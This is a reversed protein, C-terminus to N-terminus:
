QSTLLKRRWGPEPKRRAECVDDYTYVFVHQDNELRTTRPQLRGDQVMRYFTSKSMRDNLRTEMLRLLEPGTFLMDRTRRKLEDRLVSVDHEVHCQPCQVKEAHEEAYLMTACEADKVMNPCPGCCINNPRNIVRWADKAHKLMDTHLNKINPSHHRLKPINAAIRTARWEDLADYREAHVLVGMNVGGRPDLENNWLALTVSIRGLLRLARQDTLLGYGEYSIRTSPGDDLRSQRYATERLRRMYWIIGPQGRDEKSGILLDRLEIGCRRCIYSNQVGRGCNTCQMSKVVRRRPM